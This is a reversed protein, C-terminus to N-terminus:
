SYITLLVLYKSYRVRFTYLKSWNSFSGVLVIFFCNFGFLFFFFFFFFTNILSPSNNDNNNNHESEPEMKSSSEVMWVATNPAAVEKEKIAPLVKRALTEMTEPVEPHDQLVPHDRTELLGLIVLTEKHDTIESHDKQAPHDPHDLIEMLMPFAIRQTALGVLPDLPAPLVALDLPDLPDLPDRAVLTEQIDLQVM